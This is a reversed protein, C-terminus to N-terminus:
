YRCGSTSRSEADTSNPPRFEDLRRGRTFKKSQYAKRVINLLLKKGEEAALQSYTGTSDLVLKCATEIDRLYCHVLQTVETTIRESTM